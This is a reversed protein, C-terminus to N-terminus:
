GVHRLYNVVEVLHPQLHVALEQLNGAAVVSEGLVAVLGAVVAVFDAGVVAVAVLADLAEEVLRLGVVVPVKPVVVFAGASYDTEAASFVVKVAAALGAVAEWEVAAALGVAVALGAVVEWKVAAALEVAVPLGAVVEWEVSAALGVAVALGAVVVQGDAAAVLGREAAGRRQVPVRGVALEVAQAAQEVVLEVMEDTGAKKEVVFHGVM